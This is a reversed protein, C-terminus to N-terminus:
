LIRTISSLKNYDNLCPNLRVNIGLNSHIQAMLHLMANGAMFHGIKTAM